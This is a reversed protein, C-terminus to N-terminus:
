ITVSSKGNWTGYPAFKMEAEKISTSQKNEDPKNRGRGRGSAQSMGRGRGRGQYPTSM